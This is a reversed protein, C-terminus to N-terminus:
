QKRGRLLKRLRWRQWSSVIYGPCRASGCRCPHLSWEALPFGYDFTLEEGAEIDRRAVIWIRGRLNQADCNPQCSHNILRAPSRGVRGDLDYRRNLVFVYVSADGGRRARELRALERRKAEAKTIREGTYEIIRTGLPIACAARVGRGHIASATVSIWPNDTSSRAVTSRHAGRRFLSLAFNGATVRRRPLDQTSPRDTAGASNKAAREVDQRNSSPKLRHRRRL